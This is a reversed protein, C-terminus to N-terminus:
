SCAWQWMELWRATARLPEASAAEWEEDISPRADTTNLTWGEDVNATSDLLM